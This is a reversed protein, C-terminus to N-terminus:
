PCADERDGVREVGHGAMPGVTAGQAPARRTRLDELLSFPLEIRVHDVGEDGGLRVQALDAALERGGLAPGPVRANGALPGRIMAPFHVEVERLVLPLNLRKRAVEGLCFDIRMCGLPIALM